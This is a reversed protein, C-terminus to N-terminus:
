MLYLLIATFGYLSLLSVVIMEPGHDPPGHMSINLAPASQFHVFYSWERSLFIAVLTVWTLCGLILFATSLSSETLQAHDLLSVGVLCFLGRGASFSGLM